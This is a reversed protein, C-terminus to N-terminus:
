MNKDFYKDLSHLISQAIRKQYTPTLLRRAEAENSVFGTEILISPVDPAKLVAFGAYRHPRKLTGVNTNQFISVVTNALIKSQNMTERMSLDLLIKSIDPDEVDLDVGAIIDSRNERAALRATQKDSATNSLTYISAGRTNHNGVSDAHISIFIDANANRAIKVRDHLKIYYDKSRTLRADYRGTANLIHAVTKAMPLTINKEKIGGPSIAGPDQGGHGPDIVIIPKKRTIVAPKASPPTALIYPQEDQISALLDDLTKPKDGHEIFSGHKVGMYQATNHAPIREVDIVLRHTGNNAGSNLIFAHKIKFTANTDITIISANQNQKHQIAEFPKQLNIKGDARWQKPPFAIRVRNPNNQMSVNFDPDGTLDIVIRSYDDHHGIRLGQIVNAQATSTICIFLIFTLLRIM